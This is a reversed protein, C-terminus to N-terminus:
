EEPYDINIMLEGLFYRAPWHLNFYDDWELDIKPINPCNFYKKAYNFVNHSTEEKLYMNVNDDTEVNGPIGPEYYFGLLHIFNHLMLNTLYNLKFKNTNMIPNIAIVGITPVGAIDYAVESYSDIDEMEEDFKFLIYYNYPYLRSNIIDAQNFYEVDYQIDFYDEDMKNIVDYDMEIDIINELIDKAKYM